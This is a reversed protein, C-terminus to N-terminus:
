YKKSFKTRSEGEAAAAESAPKSEPRPAAPEAAREPAAPTSAPPPPVPSEVAEVFALHLSLLTQSLLAQEEKSLNGKTKVEIMELQDIFLRAGELDRMTQGSQPHPMKGLLLRALNAQQVVMQAFLASLMEDRSGGGAESEINQDNSM